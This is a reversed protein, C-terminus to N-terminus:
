RFARVTKRFARLIPLERFGRRETWRSLGSYAFANNQPSKAYGSAWTFYFAKTIKLKRAHFRVAHGKRQDFARFPHNHAFWSFFTKTRKIAGGPTSEPGTYKGKPLHGLASPWGFETLFIKRPRDHARSMEMRAYAAVQYLHRVSASVGTAHGTTFKSGEANTYQNIAIADFAHKGGHRYLKRLDIWAPHTGRSKVPRGKRCVNPGGSLGSTVVTARKDVRHVAKYSAKLMPVYVKWWPSSWWFACQMPENWIQWTRIPVKPVDRNAKFFKGKPGYRQVLKTMFTSYASVKKPPFSAYFRSKPGRSAWRPTLVVTPLLSIHNRSAARVLRDSTDWDYHGKSPNLHRWAFNLRVSQVGAAKMLGMQQDLDVDSVAGPETIAPNLSMGFFGGPFHKRALASGSFALTALLAAGTILVLTLPRRLM